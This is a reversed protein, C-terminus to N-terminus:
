IVMGSDGTSLFGFVNLRYNTTVVIVDGSLSLHGGEYGISYGNAYGGGHIYLMVPYLEGNSLKDSPAFINLNLCDESFTINLDSIQGARLQLCAPGYDTAKFVTRFRAKPVPKRFRLTGVPAEAFPIGLFTNLNRRTGKIDYSSTFGVITGVNTQVTVMRDDFLFGSACKQILLITFLHLLPTINIM